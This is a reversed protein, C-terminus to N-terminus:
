PLSLAVRAFILKEWNMASRANNTPPEPKRLARDIVRVRKDSTRLERHIDLPGASM